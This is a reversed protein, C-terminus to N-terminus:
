GLVRPGAATRRTTEGTQELGLSVGRADLQGQGLGAGIRPVSTRVTTGGTMVDIMAGIMVVTMAVIWGLVLTVETEATTEDIGSDLAAGIEEGPVAAIPADLGHPAHAITGDDATMTEIRREPKVVSTDKPDKSDKVAKADKSEKSEKTDKQDKTENAEKAEKAETKTGAETTKRSEHVKPSGRRIPDIASAAKIRRPPPVLAEDVELEPQKAAARKSERLLNALAEQELREHDEKSLKKKVEEPTVDDLSINVKSGRRGRDRDRDRDHGRSRDRDRDRERDRDRHRDRDRSRSRVREKEREKDRARERERRRERSLERERERQARRELREKERQEDEEREKKRRAERVAKEEERRKMEEREQIQRQLERKEEEVQRLNERVREREARRAATEAAYEEDTKAGRIREEEAVELGIEAQRLQRMHNEIAVSDILNYIIAQARQYVDSRDVAGDILLAAKGRELTLLQTPNNEIEQEAVKFIEELIQKEYGGNEFQEWAQKRIADYGGKKKFTHALGDVAARTSSSLPLESAKFKRVILNTGDPGGMSPPPATAASEM